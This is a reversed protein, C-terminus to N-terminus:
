PVPAGPDIRRVVRWSGSSGGAPVDVPPALLFVAGPQGVALTAGTWARWDPMRVLDGERARADFAPTATLGTADVDELTGFVRLDGLDAIRPTVVLTRVGDRVAVARSTNIGIDGTFPPAAGGTVITANRM